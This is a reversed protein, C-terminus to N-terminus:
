FQIDARAEKGSAHTHVMRLTCMHSYIAGKFAGLLGETVSTSACFVQRTQGFWSVGLIAFFYLGIM